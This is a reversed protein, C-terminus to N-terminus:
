DEFLGPETDDVVFRSRESLALDQRKKRREAAALLAKSIVVTHAGGDACQILCVGFKPERLITVDPEDIDFELFCNKCRGIREEGM